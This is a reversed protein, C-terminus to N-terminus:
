KNIFETQNEAGKIISEFFKKYELEGGKECPICDPAGHGMLIINIIAQEKEVWYSAEFFKFEGLAKKIYDEPTFDTGFCTQSSNM